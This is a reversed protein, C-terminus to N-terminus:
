KTRPRVRPKTPSIQDEPPPEVLKCPSRAIEHQTRALPAAAGRRSSYDDALREDTAEPVFGIKVFRSVGSEQEGAELLEPLPDRTGLREADAHHQEVQHGGVLMLRIQERDVGVPALFQRRQDIADIVAVDAARDAEPQKRGVNPRELPM